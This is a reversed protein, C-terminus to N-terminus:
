AWGLWQRALQAARAPQVGAVDITVAREDTAPPELDAYQSDLLGVGAFHGDREARERVRSELVSQPAELHIFVASAAAERIADRYARKLGSCAVVAGDPHRALWAGIDALWPWRDDDTLPMGATMKAINGAPHFDDGDGFPLGRERALLAGVTSKGCGTVGMVVVQNM